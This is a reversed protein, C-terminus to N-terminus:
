SPSDRPSAGDDEAGKESSFDEELSRTATDIEEPTLRYNAWADVYQTTQRAARPELVRRGIRVMLYSGFLFALFLLLSHLLMRYLAQLEAIHSRVPASTLAPLARARGAYIMYAIGVASLALGVVVFGIALRSPRYPEAQM